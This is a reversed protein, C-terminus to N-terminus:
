AHKLLSEETWSQLDHSCGLVSTRKYGIVGQFLDLSALVNQELREVIKHRKTAIGHGIARRKRLLRRSQDFCCKFSSLLSSFTLTVISNKGVSTLGKCAVMITPKIAVIQQM